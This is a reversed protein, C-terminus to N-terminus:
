SPTPKARSRRRAPRKPTEPARLTDVSPPMPWDRSLRSHRHLLELATIAPILAGRRRYLMPVAIGQKRDLYVWNQLTCPMVRAYRALEPYTYSTLHWDPHLLSPKMPTLM